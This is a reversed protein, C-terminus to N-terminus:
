RVIQRQRAPVPMSLEQIPPEVRKIRLATDALADRRSQPAKLAPDHHDLPRGADPLPLPPLRDRKDQSPKEQQPRRVPSLADPPKRNEPLDSQVRRAVGRLGAYEESYADIEAKSLAHFDRGTNFALGAGLRAIDDTVIGIRTIHRSVGVLVAAASASVGDAAIAFIVNRESSGQARHTTRVYGHDLFALGPADRPITRSRGDITIMLHSDSWGTVQGRAGANLGLSKVTRQMQIPEGVALSISSQDMVEYSGSLWERDERGLRLTRGDAHALTLTRTRQNLDSIGWHDDSEIGLRKNAVGFVLTQGRRFSFALDIAGPLEKARTLTAITTEPTPAHGNAAGAAKLTERIHQTIAGRMAHTVAVIATLRRVDPTQGLWLDAACRAIDSAPAEIVRGRAAFSALAAAADGAHLARIAGRDLGDEQRLIDPIITERIGAQRLLSFPSGAAIAGHQRDDGILGISAVGLRTAIKIVGAADRTSLMSAEDVLLAVGAHAARQAGTARAGPELLREYAKLFAAVTRPGAFGAATELEHVASRTPALGMVRRGQGELLGRVVGLAHTKGVGPLGVVAEIGDVPAVLAAVAAKQGPSLPLSALRAELAARAEPTTGTGRGRGQQLARILGAELAQGRDTRLPAEGPTPAGRSRGNRIVPGDPHPSIRGSAEAQKQAAAIEGLGIRHDGAQMALTGIQKRTLLSSKEELHLIALAVAKEARMAPAESALDRQRDTKLTEAIVTRGHERDFRMGLRELVPGMARGMGGVVGRVWANLRELPRQARPAPQEPDPTASPSQSAMVEAARQDRAVALTAAMDLGYARATRAWGDQMQGVRAASVAKEKGQRTLDWARERGARSTDGRAEAARAIAAHRSSFAATADSGVGAITPLGDNPNRAVAYGLAEILRGESAHYGQELLSQSKFLEGNDLARYVKDVPDYTVNVLLLHVHEHPEGDRSVLERVRCGLMEIGGRHNTVGGTTVRQYGFHAEVTDFLDEAALARVAGIRPDGGPLLSALSVSKDAALLLEVGARHARGEGGPAVLVRGDPAKGALLMALDQRTAARPLDLREALSGVWELTLGYSGAIAAPDALLQARQEARSPTSAPDDPVTTPDSIPAKATDDPAPAAEDQAPSNPGNTAPNSGAIVGTLEGSQVAEPDPESVNGTGNRGDLAAGLADEVADPDGAYYDAIAEMSAAGSADLAAGLAEDADQAHYEAAGSASGIARALLV